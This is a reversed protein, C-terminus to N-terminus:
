FDTTEIESEDVVFIEMNCFIRRTKLRKQIAFMFEKSRDVDKRTWFRMNLGPNMMNIKFEKVRYDLAEDIQQLTGDSFKHIENFRMIMQVEYRDWFTIARSSDIVTYDHKYEFGTADRRSKTLNLQTQYSEIGLQFDEVRHRIVLHRTWLNVATTLIKKDKPPLHNLHGQLNLLYLDEFDSPYLYKLDREAIVHENLDARHLVIKKMYDYEYMSFFEIRVVSLIQMHTRVARRDGESTHKCEEEIWTQDPVMQELGVDPYYAAKMKSISLAPRSGKSGYRLYELDKNFFFDSQITVQGPPGGLPLPKSVNHRLISDDVSDTLLKHYDEMKYQLHIVDPHFVKIIEFTPGELDQPKLETIGRRKCFWDMFMAIDGTDSSPISWTPEPTAPREEELPKWWDQRLNVKPIHTNEIDEDDFSQAEQNTSPPPPPPPPVQSSRSARSSGSAGSPGAPPPPPHPQYPPSGPPTKPSKCSKKKKKRAEALDKTLEESHDRNMSKELAEYLQMHDEHSKYSDTEWMRQHLIEKMDAEPLDRKELRKNEQILDAMIHKLESIRKMIMADTTSQQQQSPPPLITTTTTTTTETTTAKLLQHVKPSEPRSTLDIISSTMLPTSSMDQQITVSVMLEVETEATAKDNDKQEEVTLKLNEQVKPYATATFGEDMQKPPPQPSVDAVNLDMHERDLGAHVVPSPMPQSEEVNGPDPGAQGKAKEDPNSRAQIEDQGGADARPVDEKSEEENNTLRLEAYLSSSEDYGSSRTPTSPHRQFINRDVPSKKKPTQLNLLDRAVQEKIVKEKGRRPVEPLPQYKESKPERIVVPPLPGRPVDYMSKMSEELARQVDAEEDDVRPEKAPVDEAVSEDVFRLSLKRKKGQTKAPASKPQPQTSSVPKSVSPRPHAKPATPKLKRVTKTPKPAASDPDSGTEGALYRQHKAVKALYEQYYSAEQIDITILSGSIPMGFVERKTGKASFKLYGLVPEENPLHLPSDPRPHFKHQRQLHYIILKTFRISSIVILTAKKKEHTRQALNRKDEIFTHISQTFEEWIREAYDIHARTVVGWLIQLVPARPREFGSMKRTLCLNIITTLARWLQFMDNTVVNSLNRVLKPYGLENVFNILADSSPPSTFVQKDNVPTIQLADRLTDKTLDFWQEDLQCSATFARFFNTHKLIDVAIKYIPNSQSKEVDLYCNRKGIPVWRIHPFIQDDTRMPPAMTPAQSAPTNVVDAITDLRPLIFEFRQRPLAKTFIDALQYDTTVFYLEVVGKEVQERIFHHRIDIHKSRSHQVNNCCLAITSRNDCYWPIKNFDFGYDTLQSRMWLIQACCGSMSIYKAETTFIATSKQKKSSWSVLKDGLFQASGSTSRRTDQCGAHDADAYATLAMATDKPYWLRWNITGKLYRFVRKLAELHKKTPSAQYRACMCVAFVLDPMNATLYMLSGVMSHFRTQDVLIRLPDEDLKLQDMTPTDVPGCSDMGFKKLIKLAFKSQNIFIGRHSKSVQLGLFFSIQGMMSMKFKSSMENSFIDYSKPDTSAFIIDDVYIQVLLIHKGTKRTFLTPDVAGKSFKNDLIFRSLTDYWARHAQKLGYLAKKLRYVHTPHDPDVFGEPQSVYVEEKLEVNLFATKIDMQYITMNKSTANAIFIRIAEIRAVPAFSEEFDIGEEQRYGKKVLQAKNKLVDGYEDLKVKYIWYTSETSSIDGSSSAESNPESAFVNVFPNNDVPAVPHDAIYTPEAAVGQHSQLTSSSSSISPSPADQDITTSSPTGASNVLAQVAQTPSVPREVHHPELYENFMPQFLIELDKNTPPVYPTAPVSNPVLGSSIQRPTLFNPAPGTSLHVPDMPETLEDFQVHITEMIRRTRKNYIRYGKRSPAYGVFIGIDPTHILSRNQTYCATTVPEAWLFMPAKSFILMTRAAEFLTRNQREVVGNQQPTRPVTKQHFIGIREYYDTLTQNVFETGNDTWTYRVTKNLGVLIQQVFKIVVEPTEDKSRLIKVWNFRSYDDVIVLIYKKGNITQVRMPGCLDMHLTHLVELNTNKTKPKHTHKKSKGLQCASCLHDKEFKLRPLGRVLDKRALDNITSFNLHNLCRHWLWSKNKSANTDQVYCSHKRLTVELNSDCFQGVAFLNHGLREMYYVRTLPCQNGFTFIWGTPRWQHGITTLVKGTPKWIKRVQKSKWVQKVKRMINCNHLISPPAVVSHLYTVVCMDHNSSILFKNCTQFVSDLNSNIVTRKLRSSSDVHNSTRLPSKNTRPQDEVPLKNVGKAPPIMNKKTNSRPQSGRANPFSNVGTSPPMPVNTKQTIVKAVHKHANSNSKDSPKAFTVQKKRVTCGVGGSYYWFLERSRGMHVKAEEVIDRITEVSEKLHRLYDIHADRNNRLRPVILEVDIAYKGRALVKLKVHDKSASNVKELIQAKLNVNKTTLTTVQEINKARTIKISDYLEKYHQKIKDNEAPDRAVPLNAKKLQRIVNDKGQLSAQMKGIVFVSEFDSTDKDSTPPNNGFSDKLNQYKLQLNLHNVELKSFRNILEKQNDHHSKDRLNALEAELALCRAEVSTNAVHMETFRAVNLEFNTAVFFVEKSLCEVILNDNAILLNKQKIADHKRDVVNQAVEAELEEYVDKMEKIEKTLAKQIGEFNDKLTKFFLIVEKLYCEKTQEFDREGETLGTPTILKVQEKYTALEATLSNEVVTNRSPNSVSQAYPECMDNYIMMFADNPVSSVDSHVVPVENDKVYQDYPIMNSDSTYDAHSDVIHNLRVSDHMAHKAHAHHAYVADQYHDHDQVESLIDSDHSPGAEDTVPDASSLNAMFMTQAMPAEDVDSDFADCDDAQFVNDVNLAFDGNEQAQMLLMKDKYYESNQPRKPQTCNRAIHGTGNCNYCKVQRAQGPNANGVRNQVGGYGATGGGATVFRGWEPLMINVFTSNLQMRSMTMKINRMDNILKAFRVYYDHISEGKHQRFHEFDDYLQSERDEKTLKSGELLMKVNDWIDKADTYHNILTYIDKPLGQLLINISRIDANYRDKEELSLDSYVRPREPGLHPARETGEALPERVFRLFLDEFTSLVCSALLCFAVIKLCFATLRSVFRLLDQSLVCGLRSVFHLLDQSLVYSTKSVFRLWTKLCFAVLNQFQCDERPLVCSSDEILLVCFWFTAAFRLVLDCFCFVINKKQVPRMSMNIVNMNNILQSFRWYYRYLTEGKVFSFKDFEDYLKYEKEQLSLRTGQMLLNVIDWIEKAVRHHNVIAYVDPPLGQLVINTAKLDCDAQILPGNQVSDIIMRGNERNEMYLEM